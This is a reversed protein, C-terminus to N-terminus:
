SATDSPVSGKGRAVGVGTEGDTFNAISTLGASPGSLLSCFPTTLRCIRQLICSLQWQSSGIPPPNNWLLLCALIIAVFNILRLQLVATLHSTTSLFLSQPTRRPRCRGYILIRDGWAGFAGYQKGQIVSLFNSTLHMAWAVGSALTM